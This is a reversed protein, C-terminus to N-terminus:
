DWMGAAGGSAKMIPRGIGILDAYGEKLLMEATSRDRIGGTLIVPLVTQAKIKKTMDRFYGPGKEPLDYGCMGGSIDLLDAGAAEFLSCAEVADEETSGNEFGYDAGGLRVAIPYDRGVATRVKAIIERAMRTRDEISGCGYEDTRRNTVPSYFQNLLYAHAIHIEVGDFGAKQVRLAAAAFDEQIQIIQEKSLEEPMVNSRTRPNMVKSPGWIMEGMALSGAHNIQQIIMSGAEHVADTLKRLGEVKTDDTVSLQKPYAKGAEESVFAYESIILGFGSDAARKEYYEILEPIVSGNDGAKGTMMPAMVLRNKLTLKNNISLKNELM